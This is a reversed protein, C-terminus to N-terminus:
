QNLAAQDIRRGREMCFLGSICRAKKKRM